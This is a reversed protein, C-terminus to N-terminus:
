KEIFRLIKSRMPASHVIYSLSLHGGKKPIVCTAGSIKSFEDSTKAYVVADDKPHIILIKKGPLSEAVSYPNYFTGTRLREWYKKSVRYGNGFANVTFDRLKILPEAESEVRWDIVPSLAVVKRVRPDTACLLAAPGGFSSGIVSVSPNAVAYRAGDWISSFGHQIADILMRVDEDPSYQLLVGDSEWSGRYRPLFVWYGKKALSFMLESQEPYGPLGSCLIIVKNSHKEPTVFETIIDKGIRARQPYAM